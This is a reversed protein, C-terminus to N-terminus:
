DRSVRGWHSLFCDHAVCVYVEIMQVYMVRMCVCVHIHVWVYSRLLFCACWFYMHLSFYTFKPSILHRLPYKSGFIHVQTQDRSDVHFPLLSGVYERSEVHIGHCM